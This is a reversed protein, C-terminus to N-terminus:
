WPRNERLRGGKQEMIRREELYFQSQLLYAPDGEIQELWQEMLVISRGSGSGEEHAEDGEGQEMADPITERGMQEFEEVAESIEGTEPRDPEGSEQGFGASLEEVM